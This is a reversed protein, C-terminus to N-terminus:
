KIFLNGSFARRGTDINYEYYNPFYLDWNEDTFFARENSCPTRRSGGWYPFRNLYNIPSYYNNFDQNAEWYSPNGITYGYVTRLCALVLIVKLFM